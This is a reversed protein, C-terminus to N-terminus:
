LSHLLHWMDGCGLLSALFSYCQGANVVVMFPIFCNINSIGLSCKNPSLPWDITSGGGDEFPKPLLVCFAEQENWALHSDELPSTLPDPQLWSALFFLLSHLNQAESWVIACCPLRDEPFWIDQYTVVIIGHYSIGQFLKFFRM